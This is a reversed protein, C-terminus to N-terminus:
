RTVAQSREPPQDRGASPEAPVPVRITFVAGGDPANAVSAQGGHEAAVGAVIALGLGAGGGTRSRDARWFRDFAHILGDPAMGPGHDRVTVQAAGGDVSVRVEVPTGPPTHRVANALLNTLAQRLHAPDGTVEVPAPADLTLHRDPATVAADGVVEAAVVTLDVPERRPSRTEDLRALLLLEEVLAGMEVSHQEIRGIATDLDVGTAGMRYLEAYGRISTLPTRLEHSADALFQRLREESAERDAFAQEINTMMTNFALGLQGVEGRGDAPSARRGLDGGAIARATMTLRTLPALGRGIVVLGGASLALLVLVGVVVELEVLHQLSRTVDNLPIATVVYGSDAAPPFTVPTRTAGPSATTTPQAAQRGDGNAGGPPAGPQFPPQVLVQFSGSGSVADVTLFRGHSGPAVTLVAPLAPAPCRTTYCSVLKSTGSVVAGSQTRLQVYSGPPLNDDGGQGETSSHGDRFVYRLLGPTASQLQSDVRQYQSRSYLQYTVLAFVGLGLAVFVVQITLLRRRLNM